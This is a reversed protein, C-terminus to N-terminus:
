SPYIQKNKLSLHLYKLKPCNQYIAQILNENDVNLISIETLYGKTNKILNTISISPIQGIRLTKLNPLSLKEFRNLDLDNWKVYIPVFFELSSLNVFQSLFTTIPIWEIRLYQITNAHKILSKEIPKCLSDDYRRDYFYDGHEEVFSVDNLNTQVEILKIIKLRNIFFYYHLNYFRLRKISKCMMSLGILINQPIDVDCHLSELEPFRREAGPILHLQYDLKKPISLHVFKTNKNFFLKLIENRIIPIKSEEFKKSVNIIYKLFFLDLCKLFDIYNFLPQQYTETILDNIGQNKLINRSEKSLHSLIVDLIKISSKATFYKWPNSWLVPVAIECWNRNVLLCSYLIM